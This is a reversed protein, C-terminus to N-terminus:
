QVKTMKGRLNSSKSGASKARTYAKAAAVKDGSKVYADGLMELFFSNTNQPSDYAILATTNGGNAILFALPGEKGGPLQAFDIKATADGAELGALALALQEMAAKAEPQSSTMFRAQELLSNAESFDFRFAEGLAYHVYVGPRNPFVDLAEEAYKRLEVTQNSLYLTALLQEWVPYVTDDLEITSKYAAAAEEMQGSHFFVDGQLAAAKAEDPHVRRLEAALLTARRGKEADQTQALENVLPLLKGVKLDIDVDARGLLAMLEADNGSSKAPAVDQLALQARVDAPELQLIEEYAKRAKAKDDQSTYYGALMHRFRLDEPKSEVLALLEKEARKEDGQGLYLSHKLRALEVNIGIKDELENYVSIAGKVDQARVLFAARELYFEAEEPNKRILEGYLDAGEKHRGSAQYLEALFSAYVEDPRKSYAKRIHDIADETNGAAYQLRGLEFHAADMDPAAEVLEEFMGIAKETKGLLAERKAEIFSTQRKIDSETPAEAQAFLPVALFYLFLLLATRM